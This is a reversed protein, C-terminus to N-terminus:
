LPLYLTFKSGQGLQSEINITGGQAHAMQTAIYLGLGLGSFENRSVAREFKEFIRKQDETAVGIGQDIIEIKAWQDVQDITITIPKGKSFKVANAMLNLIIQETKFPDWNGEINKSAIVEIIQEENHLKHGSIEVVNHVLSSLDIQNYELEMKGSQIRSINLMDDVTKIIRKLQANYTKILKEMVEKSDFNNNLKKAAIQTQLHLITLPTNLEHSALAIFEDRLLSARQALFSEKRLRDALHASAVSMIGTSFLFALNNLFSGLQDFPSYFISIGILYISVVTIFVKFMRKAELPLVLAALVSLNIGAYYKSTFGGTINCMAVVFISAMSILLLSFIFPKTKILTIKKRCLYLIVFFTATFVRYVLLKNAVYGYNYIDIVAFAPFLTMAFLIIWNSGVTMQDHILQGYITQEEKKWECHM